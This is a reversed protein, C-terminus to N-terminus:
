FYRGKKVISRMVATRMIFIAALFTTRKAIQIHDALMTAVQIAAWKARQRAEYYFILFYTFISTYHKRITQKVM